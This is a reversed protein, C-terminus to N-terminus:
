PVITCNQGNCLELCCYYDRRCQDQCAPDGDCESMCANANNACFTTCGAEVTNSKFSGACLFMMALVFGFVLNRIRM